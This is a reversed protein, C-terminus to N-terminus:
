SILCHILLDYRAEKIVDSFGSSLSTSKSGLELLPQLLLYFTCFLIQADFKRDSIESSSDEATVDGEEGDVYNITNLEDDVNTSLISESLKSSTYAVYNQTTNSSNVSKDSGSTTSITKILVNFEDKLTQRLVELLQPQTKENLLPHSADVVVKTVEDSGDGGMGTSIETVIIPKTTQAEPASMTQTGSNKITIKIKEMNEKVESGVATDGSSGGSGGSNTVISTKAVTRQAAEEYGGAAIVRMFMERRTMAENDFAIIVEDLWVRHSEIIESSLRSFNGFHFMYRKDHAERNMTEEPLYAIPDICLILSLLLDKMKAIPVISDLNVMLAGMSSIAGTDQMLNRQVVLLILGVYHEVFAYCCKRALDSKDFGRRYMKKVHAIFLQQIPDALLVSFFNNLSKSYHGQLPPIVGHEVFAYILIEILLSPEIQSWESGVSYINPNAHQNNRYQDLLANLYSSSPPSDTNCNMGSAYLSNERNHFLMSWASGGSLAKSTALNKFQYASSNTVNRIIQQMIRRFSLMRRDEARTYYETLLLTFPTQVLQQEIVRNTQVMFNLVLASFRRNM